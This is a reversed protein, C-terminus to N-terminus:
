RIIHRATDLAWRVVRMEFKITESIIRSLTHFRFYKGCTGAVTCGNIALCFMVDRTLVQANHM